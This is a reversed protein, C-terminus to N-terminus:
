SPSDIESTVAQPLVVIDVLYVSLACDSINTLSVMAMINCSIPMEHRSVLVSSSSSSHSAHRVEVIVCKKADTAPDDRPKIASAGPGVKKTKRATADARM